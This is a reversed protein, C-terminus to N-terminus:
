VCVCTVNFCFPNVRTLSAEVLHQMSAYFHTRTRKKRKKERPYLFFLHLNTSHFRPKEIAFRNKVIENLPHLAFSCSSTFCHPKIHIDTKGPFLNLFNFPIFDVDKRISWYVATCVSPKISLLSMTTEIWVCVCCVCLVAFREEM